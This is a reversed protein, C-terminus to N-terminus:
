PREMLQSQACCWACRRRTTHHVAGLPLRSRRQYLSCPSPCASLVVPPDMGATMASFMDRRKEESVHGGTSSGMALAVTQSSALEHTRSEVEALWEAREGQVLESVAHAADAATASAAAAKTATDGQVKAIGTLLDLVYLEVEHKVADLANISARQRNSFELAAADYALQGKLQGKSASSTTLSKHHLAEYALAKESQSLLWRGPCLAHTLATALAPNWALCRVKATALLEQLAPMPETALAVTKSLQADFMAAQTIQSKCFMASFEPGLEAQRDKHQALGVLLETYDHLAASFATSCLRM